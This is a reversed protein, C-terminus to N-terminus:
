KGFIIDDPLENKDGKREYPFHDKLAIGIDKVVTVLGDAYSEKRFAELMKLAERNWYDEGMERFIGQDAYIAFQHDRMAIYVLVANREDTLDMKLGFFIEAARNLPNVYRCRSEVFIRVEGSTMQEAERVADVIREAEGPAFHARADKSFINSLFGVTKFNLKPHNQHGQM